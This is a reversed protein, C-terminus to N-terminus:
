VSATKPAGFGSPRLSIPREIAIFLVSSSVLTTAYLTPLLIWFLLSPMGHPLFKSIALMFLRVIFGHVLYYSYSMNGIWRLPTWSMARSVAGRESLCVTLLSFFAITQAFEGGIPPLHMMASAAFATVPIVWGTWPPLGSGLGEALLMGAFFPMMRIPFNPINGCSAVLFVATIVSLAGVRVSTPRAHMKAGLVFAATVFYFFMEYSLSWAVEVIRGIPFLGPLLLVNASILAASKWPDSPIKATDRTVLAIALAVSFVVLFAPYIRQARRFIFRGFKPNNRVLTGYILYGSLVFFLEVGYNGYTRFIQSFWAAPGDQLGILQSQVTYHQLFVLTVALGRLGEMPLLRAHQPDQLEFARQMWPIM